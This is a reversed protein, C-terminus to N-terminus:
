KQTGGENGLRHDLREEIHLGVGVHKVMVGLIGPHLLV